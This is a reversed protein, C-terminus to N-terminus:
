YQVRSIALNLLVLASQTQIMQATKDMAADESVLEEEISRIQHAKYTRSVVRHPEGLRPGTTPARFKPYEKPIRHASPPPLYNFNGPAFTLADPPLLRPLPGSSQLQLVKIMSWWHTGKASDWSEGQSAYHTTRAETSNQRDAFRLEILRKMTEEIDDCEEYEPKPTSSM